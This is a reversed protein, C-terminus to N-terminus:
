RQSVCAFFLCQLQNESVASCPPGHVNVSRSMYQTCIHFTDKHSIGNLIKIKSFPPVCNKDPANCEARILHFSDCKNNHTIAKNRAELAM